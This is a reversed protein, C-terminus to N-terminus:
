RNYYDPPLNANFFCPDIELPLMGVPIIEEAQTAVHYDAIFQDRSKGGEMSSHPQCRPINPTFTIVKKQMLPFTM